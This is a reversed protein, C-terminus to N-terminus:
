HFISGGARRRREEAEVAEIFRDPMLSDTLLGSAQLYNDRFTAWLAVDNIDNAQPRPYYPDNFYFSQMLQKVGANDDTFRKCQDFDLLWMVNHRKGLTIDQCLFGANDKNSNNCDMASAPMDLIPNRDLVFEVDNADVRASWHLIALTIAMDIAFESTNLQLEEMENVSLDFNRLRFAQKDLGKERRGLYLRVLCDRNDPDALITRKIASSPAFAEVIDRRLGETVPEIRSSVLGYRYEIDPKIDEPVDDWFGDTLRAWYGFQPNRIVRHLNTMRIAEEIVQHMCCDNWLQDEKGPNNTKIVLGSGVRTWIQGCQGKGIVKLDALDFSQQQLADRGGCVLVVISIADDLLDALWTWIRVIATWIFTWFPM